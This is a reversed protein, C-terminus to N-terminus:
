DGRLLSAGRWVFLLHGPDWAGEGSALSIRLFVTRGRGPEAGAGAGSGPRGPGTRPAPVEHRHQRGTGGRGGKGEPTGLRGGLQVYPM